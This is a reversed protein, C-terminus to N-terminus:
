LVLNINQLFLAILNVSKFDFRSFIKVFIKQAIQIIEFLNQSFIQERSLEDIIAFCFYLALFVSHHIKSIDFKFLNRGCYNKKPICYLFFIVCRIDIGYTRSLYGSCQSIHSHTPVFGMWVCFLWAIGM